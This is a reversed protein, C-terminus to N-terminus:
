FLAGHTMRLAVRGDPQSQNARRAPVWCAVATVALLV